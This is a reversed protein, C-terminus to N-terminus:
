GSSEFSGGSRRGSGGGSSGRSPQPAETHAPAPAPAPAPASSQSRPQAPASISRAEPLSPRVPALARSQARASSGSGPPAPAELSPAIPQASVLGTPVVASVSTVPLSPPPSEARAASGSPLARSIAFSCAFMACGSLVILPRRLGVRVRLRTAPHAGLKGPQTVRRDLGFTNM